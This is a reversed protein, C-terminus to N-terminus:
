ASGRDEHEVRPDAGLRNSVRSRWRPAAVGSSVRASRVSFASWASCAAGGARAAAASTRASTVARRCHWGPRAPEHLPGVRAVGSDSRGRLLSIRAFGISPHGPARARVAPRALAPVVSRVRATRANSVTQGPEFDTRVLPARSDSRVRPRGSDTRLRAASAASLVRRRSFKPCSSPCPILGRRRAAVLPGGLTLRMVRGWPM